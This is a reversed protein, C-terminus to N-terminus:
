KQISCSNEYFFVILKKLFFFLFFFFVTFIADRVFNVFGKGIM